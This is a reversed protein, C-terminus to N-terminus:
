LYMRMYMYDGEITESKSFGIKIWFEMAEKHNLHVPVSIRHPNFHDKIYEICLKAAVKGKGKNRYNDDIMFNIIQYNSDGTYVSIYGIVNDNEYIALPITTQYNLWAEALSYIVTDVYDNNRVTTNIKIVQDFNDEDIKRLNIM